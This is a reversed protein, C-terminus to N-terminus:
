PEPPRLDQANLSCDYELWWLRYDEPVPQDRYLNVYAPLTPARQLYDKKYYSMIWSLYVRRQDDNVVVNEDDNLFERAAADLQDELRAPEFPERPLRPCSRTVCNLAFHIRPEGVRRIVTNEFNYLSRYTGGIDFQQFVFFGIQDDPLTGSVLVNYMALANYANIYFALTTDGDAFVEPHTDRTVVSIWAVYRELPGPNERLGHFDVRGQDDVRTHLVQAWSEPASTGADQSVIPPPHRVTCGSGVLLVTACLVRIPSM